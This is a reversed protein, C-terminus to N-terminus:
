EGLATETLEFDITIEKYAGGFGPPLAQLQQVSEVATMVSNDMLANGSPQVLTRRTIQGDRQVRILVRSLLGHTGALASPQQWAEYMAARVMSYYWGLPDYTGGGSGTGYDGAVASGSGVDKVASGLLKQIESKSLKRPETPATKKELVKSAETKQKVPKKKLIELGDEQKNVAAQEVAAAGGGAKGPQGISQLDFPSLDRPARVRCSVLSGLLLSVIIIVHLAASLVAKQALPTAMIYAKLRGAAGALRQIPFVM